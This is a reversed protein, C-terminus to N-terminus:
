QTRSLRDYQPTVNCYISSFSEINDDLFDLLDEMHKFLVNLSISNMATQAALGPLSVLLRLLHEVGYIDSANFAGRRNLEEIYQLREFRYLLRLSFSEDFYTRLGFAVEKAIEYDEESVTQLKHKLYAQLIKSVATTSEFDVLRRDRTIIEWDDVLICKLRPRIPLLVEYTAKTEPKKRRSLGNTKGAPQPTSAKAPKKRKKSANAAEENDNERGSDLREITKKRANRLERSLGLNDDNFEMIRESSVWEDWKSSWGKYHLFYADKERLFAPIKNALLPETKGDGIDVVLSGEEHIKLVKAEYVLPGHYALAKSGPRFKELPEAM